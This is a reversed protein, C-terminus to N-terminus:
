RHHHQNREQVLFFQTLGFISDAAGYHGKDGSSVRQSLTQFRPERSQSVRWFFRSCIKPTSVDQYISTELVGGVLDDKGVLKNFDTASFRFQPSCIELANELM